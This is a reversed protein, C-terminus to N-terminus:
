IKEVRKQHRGGEFSTNLFVDVCAKAEAEDIFRAPLSLINADNHQRALMAIERKWCLAARIGKHKNAAMSIGNGSGCILIGFDVQKNEVEDAVKHAYDPYDCSDLSNTGCDNISHGIDQVYKKIEPLTIDDGAKIATRCAMRAIRSHFFKELSEPKGRELDYLYDLFMKKDFQRGLVIPVTSVKLSNPGFEDYEYGLEQM